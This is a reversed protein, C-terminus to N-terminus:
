PTDARRGLLAAVILGASGAVDIAVIRTLEPGYGGTQWALVVFGMMSVLGAVIASFRLHRRFAAALLLGGVIGFLLARHRMLIELDGHPADIGYARALLEGSLVGAVPMLNILGVVIFLVAVLRAVLASSGASM